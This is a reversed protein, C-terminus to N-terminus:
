RRTAAQQQHARDARAQERAVSGNKSCIRSTRIRSTITLWYRRKSSDLPVSESLVNLFCKVTGVAVSIFSALRSRTLATFPGSAAAVVFWPLLPLVDRKWEIRGCEWWFVVLLAAPLSATVAKTIFACIFLATAL